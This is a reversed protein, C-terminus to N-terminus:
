MVNIVRAEVDPLMEQIRDVDFESVGEMEVSTTGAAVAWRAVDVL